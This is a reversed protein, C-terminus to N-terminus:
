RENLPVDCFESFHQFTQWIWSDRDFHLDRVIHEPDELTMSNWNYLPFIDDIAVLGSFNRPECTVKEPFCLSINLNMFSFTSSIKSFMFLLRILSSYLILIKVLYTMGAKLNFSLTCSIVFVSRFIRSLMISLFSSCHNWMGGEPVLAINCLLSPSPIFDMLWRFSHWPMQWMVELIFASFITSTANSWLNFWSFFQLLFPKIVTLLSPMYWDTM